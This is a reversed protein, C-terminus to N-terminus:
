FLGEWLINQYPLWCHSHTAFVLWVFLVLAYFFLIFLTTVQPSIQKRLLYPLRSFVALQLPIFYLSIRDVATTAYGVLFMSFISAISIWLWFPYDRYLHKWRKRYLLLFIAPLFNMAVRIKAGSSQMQQEVYTQWLHEEKEALLLDWGGYLVPVIVLLRVIMNGKTLFLGFPLLVLATKHFLAAFLVWVIYSKFRGKELQTIAFMFLGLAVGQRSYGMSVMVVMYPVSVALALWPYTQTRAFKILGIVFITAYILNVGYIGWDFENAVWNVFSHAPDKLTTFAEAYPIDVMEEYHRLYNCWDCGIKDRLGIIIIFLAGTAVWPLLTRQQRQTFILAFALPLLYLLWYTLM